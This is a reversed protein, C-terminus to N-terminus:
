TIQCCLVHPLSHDLDSIRTIITSSLLVNRFFFHGHTNCNEIYIQGATSKVGADPKSSVPIKWLLTLWLKQFKCTQFEWFHRIWYYIKIYNKLTWIWTWIDYSIVIKVTGLKCTQTVKGNWSVSYVTRARYTCQKGTCYILTALPPVVGHPTWMHTHTIDQPHTDCMARCYQWSIAGSLSRDNLIGGWPPPPPCM